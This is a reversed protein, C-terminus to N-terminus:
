NYAPYKYNVMTGWSENGRIESSDADFNIYHVSAGNNLHFREVPGTRTELYEKLEKKEPLNQFHNKLKPIPSLTYFEETGRLKCYDIINKLVDGGIGKEGHEPVRFISYFIACRNSIVNDSM